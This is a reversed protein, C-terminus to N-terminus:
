LYLPHLVTNYSVQLLIIAMQVFQKQQYGMDNEVLCHDLVYWDDLVSTREPCYYVSTSFEQPTAQGSDLLSLISGNLVTDLV